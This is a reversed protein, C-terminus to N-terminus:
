LIFFIIKSKLLSVPLDLHVVVVVKTGIIKVVFIM